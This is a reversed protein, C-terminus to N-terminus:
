NILTRISIITGENKKSRVLLDSGINIARERMGLMGMSFDNGAIKSQIGIGDDAIEMFLKGENQSLTIKVLSYAAHKSINTLIM